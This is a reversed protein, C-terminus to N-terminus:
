PDLVPWFVTSLSNEEEQPDISFEGGRQGVEFLSSLFPARSWDGWGIVVENPAGGSSGSFAIDLGGSEECDRVTRVPRYGDNEILLRAFLGGARDGDYAGPIVAEGREDLVGTTARIGNRKDRYARFHTEKRRQDATYCIM